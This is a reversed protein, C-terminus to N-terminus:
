IPTSPSDITANVVIPNIVNSSLNAGAIQEQQLISPTTYVTSYFAPNVGTGAMTSTPDIPINRLLNDVMSSYNDRSPSPIPDFLGGRVPEPRPYDDGIDKPEKSVHALLEDLYKKHDPAVKFGKEIYKRL